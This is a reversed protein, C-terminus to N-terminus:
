LNMQNIYLELSFRRQLNKWILMNIFGGIFIIYYIPVFQITFISLGMYVMNLITVQPLRYSLMLGSTIKKGFSLQRSEKKTQMLLVFLLTNMLFISTILVALLFVASNTYTMLIKSDTLILVLIGTILVETQWNERFVRPYEKFFKKLSYSEIEPLIHFQMIISQVLLLLPIIFFLLNNFSIKFVFLALFGVLNSLIFYTNVLFITYFSTVGNVTWKNLLDMINRM